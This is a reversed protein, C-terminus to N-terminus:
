DGGGGCGGCGSGGGCSSGGSCSSGGGCSSFSSSDGGSGDWSSAKRKTPQLAPIASSIGLSLAQCGFVAVLYTLESTTQKLKFSLRQEYLKGYWAKVRGLVADGASTRTCRILRSLLFPAILSLFILFGVNHHGRDLAVVIKAMALIWLFLVAGGVLFQRKVLIPGHVILDKDRLHRRILESEGEVVSDELLQGLTVGAGSNKSDAETKRTVLPLRALIAKDLTRRVKSRAEPDDTTFAEGDAQILDRELLSVLSTLVLERHGGRLYAVLYPDKALEDVMSFLSTEDKAELSVRLVRVVLATIGILFVFLFLFEPGRLDLPNLNM